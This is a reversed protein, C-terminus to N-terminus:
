AARGGNGGTVGEELLRAGRHVCVNRFARVVGDDARIAFVKAGAIEAAVYDGPTPVQSVPGLLQWTQWFVREQEVRYSAPECYFRPDLNLIVDHGYRGAPM